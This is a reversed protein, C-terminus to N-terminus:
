QGIIYIKENTRSTVTFSYERNSSPYYSRYYYGELDLYIGDPMLPDKYIKWKPALTKNVLDKFFM